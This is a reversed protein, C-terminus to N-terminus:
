QKRLTYIAWLIEVTESYLEVTEIFGSFIGRGTKKKSLNFMVEDYFKIVSNWANRSHLLAIHNCTISNFYKSTKMKQHGGTVLSIGEIKEFVSHELENLLKFSYLTSYVKFYPLSM